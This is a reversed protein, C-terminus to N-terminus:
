GKVERAKLMADAIAYANEAIESPSMVGIMPGVTASSQGMAGWSAHQGVTKINTLAQGAFWDRLSMGNHYGPAPEPTGGLEVRWMRPECPFAPGGDKESM